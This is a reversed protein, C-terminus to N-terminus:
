KKLLLVLEEVTKVPKQCSYDRCLYILNKNARILKGKLLPYEESHTGAIQIIKNPIFLRNVETLLDIAAHGTIAIENIGRIVQQMCTAWVGFSAPYNIIAQALSQMMAEARTKWERIDFVISLYLLNLAMVANGSPVAGDYIEKKRVIVDNQNSSTFWFLNTDNDAFLKLVGDTIKKAASLYEDNGTVEQLHIYAQILFAHDDLFAPYKALGGKWTHYWIDNDDCLNEELFSINKLAMQLCAYDGTTAYAKCCATIMLANWGLLIKDDLLPRIRKKRSALLIQKCANLKERLLPEDMSFAKAWEKIPKPLWLINTHEWNGSGSVDYVKCFIDADEKLLNEIEQKSWVYYKGEVGESDADLASYFGGDPSCLEEQVFQITEKIAEAYSEDSNLQYAEAMVNILLANDYLMKEFHPVLWKADTSYRAFGGGLQDYIGGNIMKNLSLLAQKLSPEHHTFHYHRLLYQIVFTQPFKPARGFGGWVTDASSLINDAIKQLDAHSFINRLQKEGSRLTSFSNATIIHETLNEAQSYVESRRTTYADHIAQLTEKWSM